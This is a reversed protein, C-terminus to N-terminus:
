ETGELAQEADALAEAAALVEARAETLSHETDRLAQEAREYREEATRV